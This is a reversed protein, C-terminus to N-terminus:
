IKYVVIKTYQVRKLHDLHQISNFAPIVGVIKQLGTCKYKLIILQASHLLTGMTNQFQPNM